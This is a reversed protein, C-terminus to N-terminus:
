IIKTSPCTNYKDYYKLVLKLVTGLAKVKFWRKDYASSLINVWNKDTLAKKLLLKEIIDTTFDIEM